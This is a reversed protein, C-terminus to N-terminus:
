RTAWNCMAACLATSAWPSHNPSSASKPLCTPKSSVAIRNLSIFITPLAAPSPNTGPRPLWLCCRQQASPLCHPGRRQDPQRACRPHPRRGAGEIIGVSEHGLLTPQKLGNQWNHLDTGCIGALEQRLLLGGPAPDPVAFDEVDFAQGYTVVARGTKAM